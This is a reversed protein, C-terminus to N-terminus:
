PLGRDVISLEHHATRPVVARRREIARWIDRKDMDSATGWAMIEDLTRQCGVCLGTHPEMRCIDICPSPSPLIDNM